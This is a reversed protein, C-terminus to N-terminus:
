ANEASAKLAASAAEVDHFIPIISEIGTMKLVEEVLHQPSLLAMRGSRQQIGGASTLLARIGASAIFSVQSLDVLMVAKTASTLANLRDYIAQVGANDLRGVLKVRDIGGALQEVQLDM